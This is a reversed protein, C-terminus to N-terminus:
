IEKTYELLATDGKERVQRIIEKVVPEYEEAM